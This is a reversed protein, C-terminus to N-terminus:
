KTGVWWCMGGKAQEEVVMVSALVYPWGRLRKGGVKGGGGGGGSRVLVVKTPAARRQREGSTKKGSCRTWGRRVGTGRLRGEGGGAVSGLGSM